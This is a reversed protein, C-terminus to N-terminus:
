YEWIYDNVSTLYVDDYEGAGSNHTIFINDSGLKAGEYYADCTIVSGLPLNVSLSEVPTNVVGEIGTKRDYEEASAFSFRYAMFFNNVDTELHTDEADADIIITKAVNDIIDIGKVTYREPNNRAEAALQKFEDRRVATMRYVVTGCIGNGNEDYIGNDWNVSCMQFAYEEGIVIEKMEGGYYVTGDEFAVAMKQPVDIRVNVKNGVVASPDTEDTGDAAGAAGAAGAEPYMNAWLSVAKTPVTYDTPVTYNESMLTVVQTEDALYPIEDNHGINDAVNFTPADKDVAVRGTSLAYLTVGSTIVISEACPMTGDVPSKEAGAGLASAASTAIARVKASDTITINGGTHVGRGTGIAAGGGKYNRTDELAIATVDANGKITINACYANQNYKAAKSTGRGAGIGAGGCSGVAYVKGGEIVIESASSGYGGGIGAAFTGGDMANLADTDLDNISNFDSIYFAAAYVEGGTIHIRGSDYEGVAAVGIAGGSTGYGSGIGAGCETGYAIVKGGNIEILNGSVHYGSGIGAGRAGGKAVITGSNIIIEGVNRREAEPINIGTGYSGIGAGYKGGEVDLRGDGEFIVRSGLEVEIGASPTASDGNIRSQGSLRFTVVSNGKVIVASRGSGSIVADSLIVTANAGDITLSEASGSVTYTGDETIVIAETDVASAFIPFCAAILMVAALLFAFRKTM